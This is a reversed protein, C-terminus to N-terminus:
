IGFKELSNIIKNKDNLQLLENVENQDQVFEVLKQLIELQSHAEKLALMFIFKVEVEEGDGMQRFLVPNKLRAFAIQTKNVYEADTHPIALGIVDTKLGTPYDIERKLIANQFTEKVINKKILENSIYKLAETSDKVDIDLLIVSEDFM